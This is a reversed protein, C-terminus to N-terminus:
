QANVPSASSICGQDMVELTDVLDRVAVAQSGDFQWPAVFHPPRDDYSSSCPDIGSCSGLTGDVPGLGSAAAAAAAAFPSHMVGTPHLLATPTHEFM